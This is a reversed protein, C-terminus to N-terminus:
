LASGPELCQKLVFLGRRIWSKVTGLPRDLRSAVEEHSAGDFFAVMIARRQDESLRELCHHLARGAEVAVLRDLAGEAPDPLAELAAEDLPATRKARTIVDLSRNRVITALWAMGEGRDPDFSIARRWVSVFVDQLVDEALSPARMIRLAIAYLHASTLDYLERLASADGHGIALLLQDVEGDNWRTDRALM